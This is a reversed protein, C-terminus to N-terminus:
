AFLPRAMWAACSVRRRDPGGGQGYETSSCGGATSRCPRPGHGDLWSLDRDSSTKRSAARDHRRSRRHARPPAARGAAVDWLTANGPMRTITRSAGGGPTVARLARFLPREDAATYWIEDGKWALGHINLYEDSLQTVRGTQDVISVRGSLSGPAPLPRVGRAQRRALRARLGSRHAEGAGPQSWCRQWDSVGAPRTRRSTARDGPGVRRAVLRRVERGRGDARPTGGAIPVRALTGYTIVGTSTRASRWRSSERDRFRWCTRMPFISRIRSPVTSESRTCAAPPRRGLARRLPDDPRGARRTGIPHARAQVDAPPVVAAVASRVGAVSFCAARSDRRSLHWRLRAM